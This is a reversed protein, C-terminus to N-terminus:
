QCKTVDLLHQNVRAISPTKMASTALSVRATANKSKLPPPPPLKRYSTLATVNVSYSCPLPVENQFINLCENRVEYTQISVGRLFMALLFNITFSHRVINWFSTGEGTVYVTCINCRECTVLLQGGFISLCSQTHRILLKRSTESFVFGKCLQM